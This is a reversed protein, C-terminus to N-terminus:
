NVLATSLPNKSTKTMDVTKKVSTPKSFRSIFSEKLSHVEHPSVLTTELCPFPGIFEKM